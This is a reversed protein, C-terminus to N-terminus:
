YFEKLSVKQYNIELAEGYVDSFYRLIKKIGNKYDINELISNPINNMASIIANEGLYPNNSPARKGEGVISNFNKM